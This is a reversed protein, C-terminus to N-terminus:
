QRTPSWRPRASRSMWRAPTPSGRGCRAPPRRSPSSCRTNTGAWTRRSSAAGTRCRSRPPGRIAPHRRGRCRMRRHPDPRAHPATTGWRRSPTGCRPSAWTVCPPSWSPRPSRSARAPATATRAPGVATRGPPPPRRGVPRAPGAVPRPRRGPGVRRRVIVILLDSPTSRRWLEPRARRGPDKEAVALVMGLALLAGPAIGAGVGPGKAALAPRQAPGHPAPPPRRPLRRGNRGSWRAERNGAAEAARM